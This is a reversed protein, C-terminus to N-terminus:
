IERRNGLMPCVGFFAVGFVQRNGNSGQYVAMKNSRRPVPVVSSRSNQGRAQM